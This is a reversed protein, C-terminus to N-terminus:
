IRAGKIFLKVMIMDDIERITFRKKAFLLLM